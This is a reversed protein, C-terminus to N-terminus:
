TKAERVLARLREYLQREQESVPSLTPPNTPDIGPVLLQWPQLAFREAIRELVDIGVSTQQHKIRQATALGIQCERALRNLNERGYHHAMLAAVNAWVVNKLVM